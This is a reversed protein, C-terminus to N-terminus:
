ADLRELKFNEYMAATRLVGTPVGSCQICAGGESDTGVTWTSPECNVNVWGSLDKGNFLNVPPVHLPQSGLVFVVILTAMPM